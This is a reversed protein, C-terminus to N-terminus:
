CSAALHFLDSPVKQNQPSSLFGRLLSIKPLYEIMSKRSFLLYRAGDATGEYIYRMALCYQQVAKTANLVAHGFKM